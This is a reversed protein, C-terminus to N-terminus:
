GDDHNTINEKENEISQLSLVMRSNTLRLSIFRNETSEHMLMPIIDTPNSKNLPRKSFLFGRGNSVLVYICVNVYCTFLSGEM